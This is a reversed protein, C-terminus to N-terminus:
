ETTDVAHATLTSMWADPTYCKEDWPTPTLTGAGGLSNVKQPKTPDIAFSEKMM